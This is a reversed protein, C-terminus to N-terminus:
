NSINITNLVEGIIADINRAFSNINYHERAYNLTNEMQSLLFDDSYNSWKEVIQDIYDIHYDYLTEGSINGAAEITCEQSVIPIIGHNMCTLVSTAIGESCSPFIDFACTKAIQVFNDSQVNVFGHIIVNSPKIKHIHFLQHESAGCVHLTLEPHTSFVDFLIDLGKHVVGGSGFWLFNKKAQTVDRDSLKFNSNFLGTPVIFWIPVKPLYQRDSEAGIAIIASLDEYDEDKYVAGTREMTTKIGHREILYDIREQEKRASFSPTKETVYLIRKASPNNTLAKRFGEGLGMVMDYDSGIKVPPVNYDILDVCFGKKIFSNIIAALEVDQTRGSSAWSEMPRLYTGLMYSLLIRKQKLGSPVVGINYIARVKNRENRHNLYKIIKETLTNPLLRKVNSSICYIFNKM